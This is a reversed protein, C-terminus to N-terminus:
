KRKGADDAAARRSITRKISTKTAMPPKAGSVAGSRLRHTYIALIKEDDASIEVSAAVDEDSYVQALSLLRDLARSDGGLAKERLRLLAAEQTSIKRPRGDRMVKVPARLTAKLDTKFNRTGKRRGKPYGSQGPKFQSHRPPKCYGVKYEDEDAKPRRRKMNGM